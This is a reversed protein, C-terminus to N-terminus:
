LVGKAQPELAMSLAWCRGDRAILTEAAEPGWTGAPYNPFEATPLAQWAELIPTIVSWAAEVQDARMFLTPDGRMVDVLLTEYTEFCAAGFTESSSFRMDVPQLRMASGPQKAQFRLLIGEDPQIHMVLHNPQWDELATSPFSRHPVPRFQISVESVKAPLCKGTRLSFPVDQWRWNDVFLKIAAFTETSSTPVVRSEARYAPVRQRGIWGVGYQGGVAFEHVREQPIPRITQLVDVKKNRIEDADFSIPPEMAVLCLIQLLHNQVMDRLAGAQDYYNGRHEVGV